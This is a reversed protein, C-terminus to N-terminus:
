TPFSQDTASLNQHWWTSWHRINSVWSLSQKTLMGQRITRTDRFIGSKERLVGGFCFACSTSHDHAKASYPWLFHWRLSEFGWRWLSMRKQPPCTQWNRWAPLFDTFHFVRVNGKKGELRELERMDDVVWWRFIPAQLQGTARSRVRSTRSRKKGISSRSDNCRPTISQVGYAQIM